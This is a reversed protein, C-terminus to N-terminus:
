HIQGAAINFCNTNNVAILDQALYLLSGFVEQYPILKTNVIKVDNKPPIKM